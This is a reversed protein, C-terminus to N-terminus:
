KGKEYIRPDSYACVPCIPKQNEFCCDYQNVIRKCVQCIGIKYIPVKLIIEFKFWRFTYWNYDNHYNFHFYPLLCFKSLKKSFLEM